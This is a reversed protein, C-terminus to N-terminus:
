QFKYDLIAAKEDTRISHFLDPLKSVKRRIAQVFHIWCSVLQSDPFCSHLASKMATEYDTYFHACLLSCIHEDIYKFIRTYAIQTRKSTLVYIFPHVTYFEGIHIILLQSYFIWSRWCRYKERNRCHNKKSGFICFSFDKGECTCTTLFYKMAMSINIHKAIHMSFNSVTYRMELKKYM